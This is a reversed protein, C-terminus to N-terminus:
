ARAEVAVSREQLPGAHGALCTWRGGDRVWTQTMPMCFTEAQGDRTVEDTVLALVVATDGAVIVTAGTLTQRKWSLTGVTNERIYTDRDFTAGRHSTWRFDPHLIALLTTADAGALADARRQVVTLVEGTEDNAVVPM